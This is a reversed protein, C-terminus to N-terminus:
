HVQHSLSVHFVVFSYYLSFSQVEFYVDVFVVYLLYVEVVFFDLLHVLSCNYVYYDVFFYDFHVNNHYFNLDFFFLIDCFYYVYHFFVIYYSFDNILEKFFTWYFDNVLFVNIAFDILQSFVQVVILDFSSLVDCAILFDFVLVLVIFISVVHVYFDVVCHCFSVFMFLFDFFKAFVSFM